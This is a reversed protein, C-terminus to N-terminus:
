SFSLSLVFLFLFSFFSWFCCCCRRCCRCRRRRCHRQRCRLHLECCTMDALESSIGRERERGRGRCADGTHSARCNDTLMLIGYLPFYPHVSYPHIGHKSFFIQSSIASFSEPTQSGSEHVWFEAEPWVTKFKANTSKFPLIVGPPLSKGCLPMFSCVSVHEFAVSPTHTAATNRGLKTTIGKM